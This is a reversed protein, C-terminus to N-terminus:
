ALEAMWLILNLALKWVLSKKRMLATPLIMLQMMILVMSVVVVIVRQTAQMYTLIMVLSTSCALKEQSTTLTKVLARVM